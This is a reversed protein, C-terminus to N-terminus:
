TVSDVLLNDRHILEPERSFGLVAEIRDSAVGIIRSCEQASYNVLGRGVEGGNEDELVVLEGRSFDGIVASVGVALLSKGQLRLARCAGSDIRLRGRARITGALWQKRAAIKERSSHLLTGVTAGAAIQRLVNPMRGSAIVTPTASRSALRAARLKTRMGGRGWAGGGGAVAELEVADVPSQEILTAGADYRPDATM